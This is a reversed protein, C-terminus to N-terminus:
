KREALIKENFREVFEKSNAWSFSGDGRLFDYGSLEYFAMTCIYEYMGANPSKYIIWYLPKMASDGMEVVRQYRESEFVRVFGESLVIEPNEREEEVTEEVLAQLEAAITELVDIDLNELFLTEDVGNETIEPWDLRDEKVTEPTEDAEDPLGTEMRVAEESHNMRESETNESGKRHCAAGSMVFLIFCAMVVVASCRKM